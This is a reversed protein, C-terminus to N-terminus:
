EGPYMESSGPFMKGLEDFILGIDGFGTEELRDMARTYAIDIDENTIQNVVSPSFEYYQVLASKLADYDIQSSGFRRLQQKKTTNKAPKNAGVVQYDEEEEEEEQENEDIEDDDLAFLIEGVMEIYDEYYGEEDMAYAQHFADEIEKDTFSWVDTSSYGNDIILRREYDYKGSIEDGEAAVDDYKADISELPFKDSLEPYIKGLEQFVFDKVDWYGTRESLERAYHVLDDVDKDSLSDSVEKPFEGFEVIMNRWKDHDIADPDSNEDTSEATNQVEDNNELAETDNDLAASITEESVPNKAAQNGCAALVLAFAITLLLKKNKM